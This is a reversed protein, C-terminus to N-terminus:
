LLNGQQDGDVENHLQHHIQQRRDEDVPYAVPCARYAGLGKARGTQNQQGEQRIQRGSGKHANQDAHNDVGDTGSENFSQDARNHLTCRRIVFFGGHAQEMGKVAPSMHHHYQHRGQKEPGEANFFPPSHRQNPRDKGGNHRNGKAKYGYARQDLLTLLAHGPLFQAFAPDKPDHHQHHNAGTGALMSHALPGRSKSLPSQTYGLRHAVQCAGHGKGGCHADATHEM